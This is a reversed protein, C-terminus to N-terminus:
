RCIFKLSYKCSKTSRQIKELSIDVAKAPNKLSSPTNEASGKMISLCHYLKEFKGDKASDNMESVKPLRNIGGDVYQKFMGSIYEMAGGNIKRQNELDFGYDPSLYKTYGILKDVGEKSNLKALERSDQSKIGLSKVAFELLNGLSNVARDTEKTVLAAQSIISLLVDEKELKNDNNRPKNLKDLKSNILDAGLKNKVVEDSPKDKESIRLQKKVESILDSDRKYNVLQELGFQKGGIKITAKGNEDKIYSITGEKLGLGTNLNNWALEPNYQEAISKVSRNVLNQLEPNQLYNKLATQPFKLNGEADARLHDAIGANTTYQSFGSFGWAAGYGIARQSEVTFGKSAGPRFTSRAGFSVLGDFDKLLVEVLGSFEKSDYTPGYKQHAVKNCKSTFKAYATQSSQQELNARNGINHLAVLFREKDNKPQNLELNNYGFVKGVANIAVIMNQENAISNPPTSMEKGQETRILASHVSNRHVGSGSGMDEILEIGNAAAYIKQELYKMAITNLISTSSSKISDSGAFKSIMAGKVDQKLFAQKRTEFEEGVMFDNSDMVKLVASDLRKNVANRYKGSESLIQEFLDANTKNRFGNTEKDHVKLFNTGEIATILPNVYGKDISESTIADSEKVDARYEVLTVRPKRNKAAASNPMIMAEECLGCNFLDQSSNTESILTFAHSEHNEALLRFMELPEVGYIKEKHKLFFENKEKNTERNGIEKKLDLVDDIESAVHDQISKRIDIGLKAEDPNKSTLIKMLGSKDIKGSGDLQIAPNSKAAEALENSFKNNAYNLVYNSSIEFVESSQRYVPKLATDKFSLVDASIGYSLPLLSEKGNERTFKIDEVGEAQSVRGLSRSLDTYKLKNPSIKFKSRYDPYKQKFEEIVSNLDGNFRLWKSDITLKKLDEPDESSLGLKTERSKVLQNTKRIEDIEERSSQRDAWISKILEAAEKNSGNKFIEKEIFKEIKTVYTQKHGISGTEPDVSLDYIREINRFLSWINAKLRDIEKENKVPDLKVALKACDEIYQQAISLKSKRIYEISNVPDTELKGDADLSWSDARMSGASYKAVAEYLKNKNQKDLKNIDIKFTDRGILLLDDAFERVSNYLNRSERLDRASEQDRTLKAAPPNLKKYFDKAAEIIQGNIEKNNKRASYNEIYEINKNVVSQFAEKAEIAVTALTQTPHSTQQKVYPHMTSLNSVFDLFLDLKQENTKNELGGNKEIFKKGLSKLNPGDVDKTDFHNNAAAEAVIEGRIISSFNMAKFHDKFNAKNISSFHDKLEKDESLLKVLNSWLDETPIVTQRGKNNLTNLFTM